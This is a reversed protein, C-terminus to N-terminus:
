KRPLTCHNPSTRIVHKVSRRSAVAADVAICWWSGIRLRVPSARPRGMANRAEPSSRATQAIFSFVPHVHRSAMAPSCTHNANLQTTVPALDQSTYGQQRATQLQTALAQKEHAYKTASENSTVYSWVGVGVAALLLTVAVIVAVVKAYTPASSLWGLPRSGRLAIAKLAM